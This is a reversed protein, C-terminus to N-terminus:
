GRKTQHVTSIGEKIYKVGRNKGLQMLTGMAGANSGAISINSGKLTILSLWAPHPHSVQGPSNVPVTKEGRMIYKYRCLAELPGALDGLPLM